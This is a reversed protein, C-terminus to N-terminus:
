GIEEALRLDREVEASLLTAVQHLGSPLSRLRPYWSSIRLSRSFLIWNPQTFLCRGTGDRLVWAPVAEPHIFVEVELSGVPTGFREWDLYGLLDSATVHAAELDGRSTAVTIRALAERERIRLRKSSM